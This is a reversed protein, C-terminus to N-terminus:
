KVCYGLFFIGTGSMLKQYDVYGTNSRIQFSSRYSKKVGYCILM